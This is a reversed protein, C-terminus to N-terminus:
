GVFSDRTVNCSLNALAFADFRQQGARYGVEAALVDKREVGYIGTRAVGYSLRLGWGVGLFTNKSGEAIGRGGQAGLETFRQTRNLFEILGELLGGSRRKFGEFSEAEAFSLM